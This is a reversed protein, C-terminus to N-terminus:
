AEVEPMAEAKVEPAVVETEEAIEKVVEKKAPRKTYVTNERVTKVIMSRIITTDNEFATKIAIVAEPTTEFKFWGFYGDKFKKNENNIVRTMEYALERLYPAEESIIEASGAVVAKLRNAHEELSEEPITPVLLYSVEYVRPEAESTTIDETVKKKMSNLWVM